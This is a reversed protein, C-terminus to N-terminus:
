CYYSARCHKPLPRLKLYSSVEPGIVVFTEGTEIQAETGDEVRQPRFAFQGSRRQRVLEHLGTQRHLRARPTFAPAAGVPLESPRAGIRATGAAM